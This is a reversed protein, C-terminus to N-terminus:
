ESSTFSLDPHNCRNWRNRDSLRQCHCCRVEYHSKASLITQIIRMKEAGGGGPSSMRVLHNQLTHGPVVRRRAWDCVASLFRRASGVLYYCKFGFGLLGLLRKSAPALGRCLDQLFGNFSNRNTPRAWNFDVCESFSLVLSSLRM